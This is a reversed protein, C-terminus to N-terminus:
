RFARGSPRMLVSVSVLAAGDARLRHLVKWRAREPLSTMSGPRAEAVLARGSAGELAARVLQARVAAGHQPPPRPGWARAQAARRAELRAAAATAAAAAAARADAAAAGPSFADFWAVADEDGGDDDSAAGDGGAAGNALGGGNRPARAAAACEPRSGTDLQLTVAAGRADLARAAALDFWETV